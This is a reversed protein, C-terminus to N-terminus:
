GQGCGIHGYRHEGTPDEPICKRNGHEAIRRETGAHVYLYEGLTATVTM